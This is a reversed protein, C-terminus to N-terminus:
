NFMNIFTPSFINVFVFVNLSIIVLICVPFALLVYLLEKSKGQIEFLSNVLYLLTSGSFSYSIILTYTYVHIHFFISFDVSMFNKCFYSCHILVFSTFQQIVYTHRYGDCFLM